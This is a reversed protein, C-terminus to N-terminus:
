SYDSCRVIATSGENDFQSIILNDFQEVTMKGDNIVRRQLKKIVM